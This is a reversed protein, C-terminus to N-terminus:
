PTRIPTGRALTLVGAGPVLSKFLRPASGSLSLTAANPTTSTAGGTLLRGFLDWEDTGVKKLTVVAGIEATIPVSDAPYNLIVGSGIQFKVPDGNQRFSIESNVPLSVDASAPITVITTSAILSMCRYYKLDDTGQLTYASASITAVETEGMPGFILQYVNQASIQYGADFTPQSTHAVKVLYLRSANTVLDNVAYATSPLWNGRANWQATPITVTDSGGGAATTYHFTLQNGAVTIADIPNAFDAAELTTLRGNLDTINGDQEAFTLSSGKVLRLTITM